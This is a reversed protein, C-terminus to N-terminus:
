IFTKHLACADSGKQILYLFIKTLGEGDKWLKELFQVHDMRSQQFRECVTRLRTPDFVRGFANGAESLQSLFCM